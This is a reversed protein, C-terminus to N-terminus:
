GGHKKMWAKAERNLQKGAKTKSLPLNKYLKPYRPVTKLLAPRMFPRPPHYRGGFEHVAMYPAPPSTPGVLATQSNSIWVHKISGKGIGSQAHPPTGPESPIQIKGGKPGTSRGGREMSIKAEREIELAMKVKPEISADRVAKRIAPIDLWTYAKLKKAV